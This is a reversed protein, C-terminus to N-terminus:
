RCESRVFANPGAEDAGTAVRGTGIDPGV